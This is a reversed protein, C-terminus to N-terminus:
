IQFTLYIFFFQESQLLLYMNITTFEKELNRISEIGESILTGEKIYNVEKSWYV